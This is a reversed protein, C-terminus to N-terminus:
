TLEEELVHEWDSSSSSGHCDASLKSVLRETGMPKVMGADHDSGDLFYNQLDPRLIGDEQSPDRVFPWPKLNGAFGSNVLKLPNSNEEVNMYDANEIRDKLIRFRAMVSAEPDNYDVHSSSAELTPQVFTKLDSSAMSISQKEVDKATDSSDKQKPSHKEMEIKMIETQKQIDEKGSMSDSIESRGTLIHLRAMISAESDDAGGRSITRSSPIYGPAEDKAERALKHNKIDSSSAVSLSKKGLDKSNESLERTNLNHMELKGKMLDFRAKCSLSFLSAEAELWLNKYLMTEPNSVEDGKERLNEHLINKIRQTINNLKGIGGDIKPSAVDPGEDKGGFLNNHRKEEDSQSTSAAAGKTFKQVRSFASGQKEALCANVNSIIHRLTEYDTEELACSHSLLLGSLNFMANVLMKVDLKPTSDEGLARRLKSYAYDGSNNENTFKDVESNKRNSKTSMSNRDISNAPQFGYFGSGLIPHYPGTRLFDGSKYSCNENECPIQSPIDLAVENNIPSVHPRVTESVETPSFQSSSAGRWCPSDVAHNIHDLNEFSYDTSIVAEASDVAMKFGDTCCSNDASNVAESKTKVLHDSIDKADSNKKSAEEKNISPFEMFICNSREVVIAPGSTCTANLVVNEVGKGVEDNAMSSAYNSSVMNGPGILPTPTTKTVSLFDNMHSVPQHPFNEYPLNYHNQHNWSSFVSELAQAQPNLTESALAYSVEVPVFKRSPIFVSKDDSHEGSVCSIVNERRSLDNHKRYSFASAEEINTFRDTPHAEEHVVKVQKRYNKYTFSGDDIKEKSYFNGDEMKTSENGDGVGTWFGSWQNTYKLSSLSQTYDVQSPESMPSAHSTSLLDYGSGGLVVLPNEDNIAPMPYPPYYTKAEVTSTRVSDSNRAFSFADTATMPSLQPLRTGQSSIAEYGPCRYINSNVASEPNSAFDSGSTPNHTQLGTHPSSNFPSVYPAETFHVLSNLNPKPPSRDVEFPQASASLNSSSSSSSGVSGFAGFGMM